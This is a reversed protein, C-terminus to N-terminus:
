QDGKNPEINRTATLIMKDDQYLIDGLRIPASIDLQAIVQKLHALDAKRMSATKFSVVPLHGGRCVINGTYVRRPDMVEDRAYKEGRPCLQGTVILEPEPGVQLECGMPCIICILKM